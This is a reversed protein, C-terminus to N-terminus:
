AFRLGLRRRLRSHAPLAVPPPVTGALQDPTLATALDVLALPNGSALDVLDEALEPAAWTAMRDALVLMSADDDLPDLRATPFGALADAMAGAAADGAFVMVIRETSARRAVFALAALSVPDMWHADDVCCLVPRPDALTVFLRHVAACFALDASGGAPIDGDSVPRLLRHLGAAPLAYEPAVGSVGLVHCGSARRGIAGLLSTKGMGPEGLVALAGGRGDRAEDLLRAVTRLLGDRGHVDM